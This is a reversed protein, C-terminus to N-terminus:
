KPLDAPKEEHKFIAGSADGIWLRKNSPSFSIATIASPSSQKEWKAVMELRCPLSETGDIGPGFNWIRLSGDRHGTLILNSGVLWTPGHPLGLATVPHALTTQKTALLRGNLDWACLLTSGAAVIMSSEERISLFDFRAGSIPNIEDLLPSHIIRNLRFSNLDWLLIFGTRDVSVVTSLDSSVSIAVVPSRHGALSASPVPVLRLRPDTEVRYVQILGDVCGSVVFRGDTACTTIQNFCHGPNEQTYAVKDGDLLRLSGDDYGWALYKSGVIGLKRKECPIGKDGTWAISWVPPATISSSTKTSMTLLRDPKSLLTASPPSMFSRRPHPKKFLQSPTQGFNNIQDLLGQRQIPDDVQDIDVAGEYTLYYFLNMSDAAAEGTQKFGFILDIWEHLHQSVYDSELAERMKAVFVHPSGNAWPPLVANDIKEGSHLSGFEFNNANELFHPQYYFEPILEKVDMTNLSSASLWADGVSHFLRDPHDFRGGQLKLFHQTFPELRILFHLVIGASSYHSGYHFRPVDDDLNEYRALFKERRVPDLAGMPLSLDRYVAPDSLDLTPSVYDSLIWPFVPYQTLDNYSRGARSNLKMLYDFNTLSGQVWQETFHALPVEKRLPPNLQMLRDAAAEREALTGFAFLSNRGDASFLELAVPRLLYRRKGVHSIGEVRWRFVDHRLDPETLSVLMDVSAGFPSRSARILELQKKRREFAKLAPTGEPSVESIVGDADVYYYQIFYVNLKTLVFIGDVKDMGQIRACNMTHLPEEGSELLRSLKGNDDTDIQSGFEVPEEANESATLRTLLDEPASALPEGADSSISSTRPASSDESESEDASDPEAASSETDSEDAPSFKTAEPVDLGFSFSDLPSASVSLEPANGLDFSSPTTTPLSGSEFVHSRASRVPESDVSGPHESLPLPARRIQPAMRISELGLALSLIKAVREPSFHELLSRIGWWRRSDQSTPVRTAGTSGDADSESSEGWFPYNSFFDANPILRVRMRNATETEDLVWRQLSNIAPFLQKVSSFASLLSSPSLVQPEQVLAVSSSVWESGLWNQRDLHTAKHDRHKTVDVEQIRAVLSNVTSSLARMLGDIALRNKQVTKIRVRRTAELQSNRNGRLSMELRDLSGSLRALSDELVLVVQDRNASAQLWRQFASLDKQLLLYFGQQRLDIPDGKPPRYVLLREMPEPKTLLLLKWLQMARQRLEERESMLLFFCGRSLSALFEFDNNAAAFVVRQFSVLRDLAALAGAIGGKASGYAPSEKNSKEQPSGPPLDTEPEWTPRLGVCAIAHRVIMLVLRNLARLFPSLEIRPAMEDFLAWSLFDVVFGFLAHHGDQPFLGMSCRDVAFTLVRAVATAIKPNSKIDKRLWASNSSTWLTTCDALIRSTCFVLDDHSASVPPAWEFINFLLSVDRPTSVSSTFAASLSPTANPRQLYLVNGSELQVAIVQIATQVFDFVADSWAILLPDSVIDEWQNIDPTRRAAGTAASAATSSPKGASGLFRLLNLRGLPFLIAVLDEMADSKDRWFSEQFHKSLTFCQKLFEFLCRQPFLRDLEEAPLSASGPPLTHPSADELEFIESSSSSHARSLKTKGASTTKSHKTLKAVCAVSLSRKLIAFLINLAERCQFKLRDGEKRSFVETLTQFDGISHQELAGVPVAGGSPLLARVPLGFLLSLVCFSVEARDHQHPVVEYLYKFGGANRFRAAWKKDLRYLECCLKLALVVTLSEASSLFPALWNLDIVRAFAAVFHPVGDTAMSGRQFLELLVNLVETRLRVMRRSFLSKPQSTVRSQLTWHLFSTLLRLEEEEMASSRVVDAHQLWHEILEVLSIHVVIDLAENRLLDLLFTLFHQKRLRIINFERCQSQASILISLHKLLSLQLSPSARSWISFELILHRTALPVSLATRSLAELFKSEPLVFDLSVPVPAGCLAWSLQLKEESLQGHSALLWGLTEWKKLEDMQRQASANRHLFMRLCRLLFDADSLPSPTETQRQGASAADGEVELAKGLMDFILPILDPRSMATQVSSPVCLWPSDDTCDWSIAMALGRTALADRSARDTLLLRSHPEDELAAVARATSPLVSESLGIETGDMLSSVSYAPPPQTLPEESTGDGSFFVFSSPIPAEALVPPPVVGSQSVGFHSAGTLIRPASIALLIRDFFFPGLDVASRTPNVELVSVVSSQASLPLITSGLPGASGGFALLGALQGLEKLAAYGGAAASIPSSTALTRVTQLFRLDVADPSVLSAAALPQSFLASYSPGVYYLACIAAASAAGEVLYAPGLRWQVPKPQPGQFVITPNTPTGWQAVLTAASIVPAVSTKSVALLTGNLYLKNESAGGFIGQFRSREHVFVVHYWSRTQLHLGEGRLAVSAAHPGEDKKGGEATASSAVSYNACLISSSDVYLRIRMVASSAPSGAQRASSAPQQVALRVIDIGSDPPCQEIFVWSSLSFGDAPPFSLSAHSVTSTLSACGQRSLDFYVFPALNDVGRILSGSLVEMVSRTPSVAFLAACQRMEDSSVRYSLLNKMLRLLQNRMPACLTPLASEPVGFCPGGFNTLLKGLLGVSSVAEANCVRWEILDNICSLYDTLGPVVSSGIPTLVAMLAGPHFVTKAETPREPWVSAHISPISSIGSDDSQDGAPEDSSPLPPSHETALDVLWGFAILPESDLIGSFALMQSLPAFGVEKRLYLRGEKDGATSGILTRFITALLGVSFSYGDASADSLAGELQVLASVACVCGGADRFARRCEPNSAFVLTFAQLIDRRLVLDQSTQMVEVLRAVQRDNDDRESGAAQITQILVQLASSRASTSSLLDYLIRVADKERFQDVNYPCDQLLLGLMDMLIGFQPPALPLPALQGGKRAKKRMSSATSSSSHISRKESARRSSPLAEEPEAPSSPLAAAGVFLQFRRLLLVLIDLLGAKNLVVRFAPDFKIMVLMTQHLHRLLSADELVASDQLLAALAVLEHFPICNLGTIIFLLLRTVAERTTADRVNPLDEVFHAISHLHQVLRFNAPNSNYIGAIFEVVQQKMDESKSALFYEQFVQYADINRILPGETPDPVTSVPHFMIRPTLPASPRRQLRPTSAQVAGAGAPAVLAPVGTPAGRHLISVSGSPSSGLLADGAPMTRRRLERPSDAAPTAFLQEVALDAEPALDRVGIHVFDSLAALLQQVSSWATTPIVCDPDDHKERVRHELEVLARSLFPYGRTARFDLLLGEHQVQASRELIKLVLCCLDVLLPSPIDELRRDLSTVMKEIVKRKLLYNVMSIDLHYKVVALSVPMIRERLAPNPSDLETLPINFLTLLTDTQQLESVAAKTTCLQLLITIVMEEALVENSTAGSATAGTVVQPSTKSRGPVHLLAAFLNVLCSPLGTEVLPDIEDPPLEQALIFLARLLQRETQLMAEIRLARAATPSMASGSSPSGTSSNTSILANSLRLSVSAPFQHKLPSWQSELVVFPIKESDYAKLFTEVVVAHLSRKRDPQPTPEEYKRWASQLEALAREGSSALPITM